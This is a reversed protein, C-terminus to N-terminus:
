ETVEIVTIVMRPNEADISCGDYRPSCVQWHDGSILKSKVIGDVYSKAGAMYNVADRQKNDPFYFRYAVISRKFSVRAQLALFYAHEKEKAVKKAKVMHHLRGNQSVDYDPLPLELVVSRPNTM